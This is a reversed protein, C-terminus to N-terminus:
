KKSRINVKKNNEKGAKAKGGEADLKKKPYFDVVGEHREPHEYRLSDSDVRDKRLSVVDVILTDNHYVTSIDTGVRKLVESVSDNNDGSM